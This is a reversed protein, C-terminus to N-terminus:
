AAGAKAAQASDAAVAHREGLALWEVSVKLAGALGAITHISPSAEGNEWDSVAAQTVGAVDALQGQTFGLEVRRKRVRDGFLRSAANRAAKRQRATHKKALAM